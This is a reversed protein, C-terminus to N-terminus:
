LKYKLKLYDERKKGILYNFISFGIGFGIVAFGITDYLLILFSSLFMAMTILSNLKIKKVERLVELACVRKEIKEQNEM